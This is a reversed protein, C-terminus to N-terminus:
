SGTSASDYEFYLSAALLPFFDLSPTKSIEGWLVIIGKIFLGPEIERSDEGTSELVWFSVVNCWLRSCDDVQVLWFGWVSANFGIEMTELEVVRMCLEHELWVAVDEGRHGDVCVPYLSASIM